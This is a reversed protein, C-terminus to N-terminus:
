LNFMSLQTTEEPSIPDSDILLAWLERSLDPRVALHRMTRFKLFHWNRTTIELLLDNHDIKWKILGARSGPFLFVYQCGEPMPLRALEGVRATTSIFLRYAINGTVDDILDVPNEGASQYGLKKGIEMALKLIHTSDQERKQAHDHENLAWRGTSADTKAYSGLIASVDRDNPSLFGTFQSCLHEMVENFDVERHDRLYNVVNQEYKDSLSEPVEDLQALWWSGTEPESSSSGLHRLFKADTFITQIEKSIQAPNEGRLQDLDQPLSHHQALAAMVGAHLLTYGRPEGTDMLFKRIADRIIRQTNSKGAAASPKGSTWKCQFPSSEGACAIGALSWASASAANFVANTLGTFPEPLITFIPSKDKLVKNASSFASQLATSHWLWDFRRRELITLYGATFEKGWLWTSWVASFTWFAAYPRPVVSCITDPALNVLQSALDRMRGRNLSIGHDAPIAPWASLTVPRVANTWLAISAEMVQWLNKEIYVEPQALTRPSEESDPWPNLSHGADLAALLLADLADKQPQTLKLADIRNLLTFLFYLARPPYLNLVENVLRTNDESGTSARAFARSRHLPYSRQLAVLHELDETTAAMQGGEGCGPCHYSRAFPASEGRRYLFYEAEVMQRCKSCRTLYMSKLHEELREEGHKLISIEAMAAQFDSNSLESSLFAILFALIPNSCNVIVQFSEALELVTRPSAGIPDLILSPPTKEENVLGSAMGPYYPPLYRSLPFHKEGNPSHVYPLM